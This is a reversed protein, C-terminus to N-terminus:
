SPQSREAGAARKLQASSELADPTFFVVDPGFLDQRMVIGLPTTYYSHISAALERIAADWTRGGDEMARLAFYVGDPQGRHRCVIEAVLIQEASRRVVDWNARQNAHFVVRHLHEIEGVVRELCDQTRIAASLAELQERTLRSM